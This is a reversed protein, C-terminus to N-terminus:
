TEDGHPVCSVNTVHSMHRSRDQPDDSLYSIIYWHGSFTFMYQAFYYRQEDGRMSDTVYYEVYVGPIDRDDCVFTRATQKELTFGAMYRQVRRSQRIWFDNLDMGLELPSKTILLNKQVSTDGPVRFAAIIKNMIQRNEVLGSPIDEREQPIDIILWTSLVVEQTPVNVSRSCWWVMLMGVVIILSFMGKSLISLSSTLRM